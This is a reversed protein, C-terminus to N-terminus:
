VTVLKAVESPCVQDSAYLDSEHQYWKQLDKLHEQIGTQTQQLLYSHSGGQFEEGKCAKLSSLISSPLTMEGM